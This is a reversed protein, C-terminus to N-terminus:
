HLRTINIKEITHQWHNHGYFILGNNIAIFGNTYASLYPADIAISDLKYPLDMVEVKATNCSSFALLFTLAYTGILSRKM